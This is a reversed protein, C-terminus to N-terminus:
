ARNITRLFGIKEWTAKDIKKATIEACVKDVANNLEKNSAVTVIENRSGKFERCEVFSNKHWVKLEEKSFRCIEVHSRGLAKETTAIQYVKNEFYFELNKSIKRRYRESLIADLVEKKPMYNRHMDNENTAKKGFKENHKEIFEKIYNNAADIDSIGKIRMEKILRNQLTRNAREVRGKAQPSNACITEINLEMMARKFQTEGANARAGNVRFISHKDSYLALPRGYKKIYKKICEFYALTNEVEAFHMMVIKSTADDIFVILCCKERRGEFWDHHSGDIQILEGFCARRERQQHIVYEKCRKPMWLGWGMMLKRLTEKDIRIGDNEQLKETAFKPGFDRYKEEVLQKVKERFESSYSRNSPAGRKKSILGRAGEAQYRKKLRKIQRTSLGLRKAAEAIKIVGEKLLNMVEVKDAEKQSMTLLDGMKEGQKLIKLL